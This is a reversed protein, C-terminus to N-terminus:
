LQRYQVKNCNTIPQWSNNRKIAGFYHERLLNILLHGRTSITERSKCNRAQQLVTVAAIWSRLHQLGKVKNFGPQTPMAKCWVTPHLCQRSQIEGQQLQNGSNRNNPTGPLLTLLNTLLSLGLFDLKQTAIQRKCNRSWTTCDLFSTMHIRSGQGRQMAKCAVSHLCQLEHIAHDIGLFWKLWLIKWNRPWTTTVNEGGWRIEHLGKVMFGERVVLSIYM